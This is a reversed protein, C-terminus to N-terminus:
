VSAAVAARLWREARRGVPDSLAALGRGRSKELVSVHRNAGPFPNTSGKVSQGLRCNQVPHLSHYRRVSPRRRGPLSPSLSAKESGSPWSTGVVRQSTTPWDEKQWLM